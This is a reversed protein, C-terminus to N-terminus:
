YVGPVLRFPVRERYANYAPDLALVKEEEDMRLIQFFM